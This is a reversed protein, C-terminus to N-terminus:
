NIFTHELKDYYEQYEEKTKLKKYDNSGTIKIYFELIDLKPYSGIYDIYNGTEDLFFLNSLSNSAYRFFDDTSFNEDVIVNGKGEEKERKLKEKNTEYRRNKEKQKRKLEIFKEPFKIEFSNMIERSNTQIAYFNKNVYKTLENNRFNYEHITKLVRDPLNKEARDDIYRILIKKPNTQQKEIAVEYPMWNIGEVKNKKNVSAIIVYYKKFVSQRKKNYEDLSMSNKTIGDMKKIVDESRKKDDIQNIVNNVYAHAEYYKEGIIFNNFKENNFDGEQAILINAFILFFVFIIKKM